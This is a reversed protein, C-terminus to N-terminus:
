RSAAQRGQHRHGSRRLRRPVGHVPQLPRGRQGDGPLGPWLGQARGAQAPQGAGEQLLRFVRGVDEPHGRDQLRGERGATALYPLPRVAARLPVGYMAASRPSTTTPRPPCWRPRASNPRRPRWSTASTSGGTKGPTYRCSRTRTTSADYRPRGRQHAGRHDEATGARLPTISLEIKNGSAKEYDTVAKRLAVDEDQVFGQPFWVRPPPRRRGPSTRRSFPRAAGLAVSGRLMSRRTLHAM